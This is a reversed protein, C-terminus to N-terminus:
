HLAYIITQGNAVIEEESDYLDLIWDLAQQPPTINDAHSCFVIIPSRINRLDIRVGDSTYLAGSALKNGVFLEDAIFQMEEANLLVPSGWWREFDLFRPGETDAKSYVNYAKKWYTNAPDLSEFNSVLHAGDFIGGGLDGSLSTLWTGGLLGGLYRMPNKGHVGAWYSLPSGVLMVPGVLDPHTASMMM